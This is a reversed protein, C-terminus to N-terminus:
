VRIVPPWDTEAKRNLFEGISSEVLYEVDFLQNTIRTGLSVHRFLFGVSATALTASSAPSTRLLNRRRSQDSYLNAPVTENGTITVEQEARM